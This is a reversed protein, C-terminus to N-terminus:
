TIRRECGSAAYTRVNADLDHEDDDGGDEDWGGEESEEDEDPDGFDDPDGDASM